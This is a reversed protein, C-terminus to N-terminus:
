NKEKVLLSPLHHTLNNTTTTTIMLPSTEEEEEQSSTNTKKSRRTKNDIEIKWERYLPEKRKRKKKDDLENM